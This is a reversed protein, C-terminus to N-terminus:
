GERDFLDDEVRVAITGAVVLDKPSRAPVTM